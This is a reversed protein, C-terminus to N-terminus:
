LRSAMATADPDGWVTFRRGHGRPNVTQRLPMRCHTRYPSAHTAARHRPAPRVNPAAHHQNGATGTLQRTRRRQRRWGAVDQRRHRQPVRRRSHPARRHNVPRVRGHGLRTSTRALCGRRRATRAACRRHHDHRHRYTGALRGRGGPRRHCRGAGPGDRHQGPRRDQDARGPAPPWCVRVRSVAQVASRSAQVVPGPWCVM